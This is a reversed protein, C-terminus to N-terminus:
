LDDCATSILPFGGRESVLPVATDLPDEVRRGITAREGDCVDFSKKSIADLSEPTRQSRLRERTDVKGALIFLSQHSVSLGFKALQCGLKSVVLRDVVREERLAESVTEHDEIDDVAVADGFVYGVAEFVM